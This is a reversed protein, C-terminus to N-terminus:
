SMELSFKKISLYISEKCQTQLITFFFFGGGGRSSTLFSLVYNHAVHENIKSFNTTMWKHSM